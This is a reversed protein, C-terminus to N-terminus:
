RHQPQQYGSQQQPQQQHYVPVNNRQQTQHNQQQQQNDSKRDVFTFDNLKISVMSKKEGNQDQWRDQVLSGNILIRSGKHFYQSITEARKGFVSVKFFHAKEIKNGNQDQYSENVAISFNGIATSSQSYKLEVEDTLTGMIQINNFM